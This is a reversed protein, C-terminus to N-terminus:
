LEVQLICLEAEILRGYQKWMQAETPSGLLLALEELDDDQM